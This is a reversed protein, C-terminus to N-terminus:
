LEFLKEREVKHKELEPKIQRSELVKKFHEMKLKKIEESTTVFKEDKDTM